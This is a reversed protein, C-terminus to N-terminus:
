GRIQMQVSPDVTVDIAGSQDLTLGTLDDAHDHGFVRMHGARDPTGDGGIRQHDELRGSDFPINGITRQRDLLSSLDLAIEAVVCYLGLQHKCAAGFGNSHSAPASPWHGNPFDEDFGRLSDRM